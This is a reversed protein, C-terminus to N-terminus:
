IYITENRLNDVQTFAATNIIWDPMLKYILKEFRKIQLILNLWNKNCFYMIKGPNTRKEYCKTLQGDGGAILIKM